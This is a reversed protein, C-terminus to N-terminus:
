VRMMLMQPFTRAKKLCDDKQTENSRCWDLTEADDGQEICIPSEDSFRVKMWGDV